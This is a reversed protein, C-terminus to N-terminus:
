SQEGGPPTYGPDHEDCWSVQVPQVDIVMSTCWDPDHEDLFAAGAAVREATTM